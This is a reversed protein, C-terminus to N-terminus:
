TNDIFKLRIWIFLNLQYNWVRKDLIVFIHIHKWMGSRFNYVFIWSFFVSWPCIIKKIRFLSPSYTLSVNLVHQGTFEHKMQFGVSEVDWTARLKWVKIFHSFLKFSKTMFIRKENIQIKKNLLFLRFLMRWPSITVIILRFKTYIVVKKNNYWTTSLFLPHKCFSSSFLNLNSM